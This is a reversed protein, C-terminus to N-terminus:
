AIREYLAVSDRVGPFSPIDIGDIYEFSSELVDQFMDGGTCGNHQEGIYVFYQGKFHKLAEGSKTEPTPWSWLLNLDNLETIANLADVQIVSMHYTSGLAYPNGDLPHADTPIVNVGAETLRRALYANGAGVELVEAHGLRQVMWEIAEPTIVPFGYQATYKSRLQNLTHESAKHANQDLWQDFDNVFASLYNKFVSQGKTAKELTDKAAQYSTNRLIDFALQAPPEDKCENLAELAAKSTVDILVGILCTSMENTRILKRLDEHVDTGNITVM